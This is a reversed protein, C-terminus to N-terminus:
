HHQKDTFSIIALTSGKLNIWNDFDNWIISLHNPNRTSFDDYWFKKWLQGKEVNIGAGGSEKEMYTKESCIIWADLIWGTEQRPM